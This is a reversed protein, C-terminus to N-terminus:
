VIPSIGITKDIALHSRGRLECDFNVCLPRYALIKQHSHAVNRDLRKGSRSSLTNREVDPLTSDWMSLMRVCVVRQAM